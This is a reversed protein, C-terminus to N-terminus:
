VGRWQVRVYWTQHNIGSVVIDVDRPHLTEDPGILGEGKAWHEICSTIEKHGGQVGHCLGITPVQGYKNCAWVNMAMPNSYNLFLADAKAVERIDGCMSLLAPITRQAYM